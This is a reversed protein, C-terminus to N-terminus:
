ERKGSLLMCYMNRGHIINSGTPNAVREWSSFPNLGDLAVKPRLGSEMELWKKTKCYDEFDNCTALFPINKAIAHELVGHWTNTPDYLGTPM